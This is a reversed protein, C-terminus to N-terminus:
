SPRPSYELKEVSVIEDLSALQLSMHAMQLLVALNPDYVRRHPVEGALSARAVYEM